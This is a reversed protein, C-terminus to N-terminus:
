SIIEGTCAWSPLYGVSVNGDTYLQRWFVDLYDKFSTMWKMNELCGSWWACILWDGAEALKLLQGLQTDEPLKVGTSIEEISDTFMCSSTESKDEVLYAKGIQAVGAPISKAFSELVYSQVTALESLRLGEPLEGTSHLNETVSVILFYSM